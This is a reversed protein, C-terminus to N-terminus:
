YPAHNEAVWIRERTWYGDHITVEMWHGRVWHGNPKYHGPNWVRKHTPPIWIKQWEWHGHRYGPGRDHCCYREPDVYVVRPQPRSHHSRYIAHGLLAAGVGIAVGEWRYRQKSGALAPSSVLPIAFAGIVLGILLKKTKM